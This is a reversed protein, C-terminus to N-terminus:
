GKSVSAGLARAAAGAARGSQWAPMRRRASDRAQANAQYRADMASASVGQESSSSSSAGGPRIASRDRHAIRLSAARYRRRGSTTRDSRRCPESRRARKRASTARPATSEAGKLCRARNSGPTLRQPPGQAKAHAGRAPCGTPTTSPAGYCCRSAPTSAASSTPPGDPSPMTSRRTSALLM